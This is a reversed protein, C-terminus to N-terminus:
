RTLPTGRSWATITTQSPLKWPRVVVTMEKEDLRGILRLLGEDIMGRRLTSWDPHFAGLM